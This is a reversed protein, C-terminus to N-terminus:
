MGLSMGANVEEDMRIEVNKMVMVEEWWESMVEGVVM